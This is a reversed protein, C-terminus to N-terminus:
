LGGRYNGPMDEVPQRQQEEDERARQNEYTRACDSGRPTDPGSTTGGASNSSPCRCSCPITHMRQAGCGLASVSAMKSAPPDDALRPVLTNLPAVPLIPTTV